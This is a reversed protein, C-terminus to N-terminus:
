APCPPDESAIRHPLIDGRCLGLRAAEDRFRLLAPELEAGPDYLCEEALYKRCPEFPLAWDRAAERALTDIAASGRERAREFAALHQADLEVGPRVIWLAFIFPLGTDEAWAASPNLTAPAGPTLAEVLAKDGIRLWGGCDREDAERRPDRGAPAEAFAIGPERRALVVQALAQSTRSAPDLVVSRLAGVPRRLFVQVSAVYGRGAIAPGAIYGYGPARFLEISSVLAVDLTGARLREVLRAPVERAVEFGPESELGLNLPRAVLYPVTGVRLAM